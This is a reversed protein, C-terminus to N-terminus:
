LVEYFEYNITSGGDPGPGLTGRAIAQIDNLWAYREDGTEFTPAATVVPGGPRALDLKGKYSVFILADDSTRLTMRVDVDGVRGKVLIWDAAAPGALTANIREGAVTVARFEGISRIGGLTKGVAMPAAVEVVATCLLKTNLM